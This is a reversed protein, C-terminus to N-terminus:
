FYFDDPNIPHGDVYIRFDLHPGTSWGTSGMYGIIQGKEVFQGNEVAFSKLHSYQTSVSFFPVDHDNPFKKALDIFLSNGFGSSTESNFRAYGSHAAYIPTGLVDAFDWGAHFRPVTQGNIQLYQFDYESTRVSTDPVPM